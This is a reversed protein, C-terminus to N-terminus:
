GLRLPKSCHRPGTQAADHSSRERSQGCRALRGGRLRGRDEGLDFRGHTGEPGPLSRALRWRIDVPDARRITEALQAQQVVGQLLTAKASVFVHWNRHNQRLSRIAGVPELRGAHGGVQRGVQILVISRRRRIRWAQERHFAWLVQPDLVTDQRAVLDAGEILAADPGLPIGVIVERLRVNSVGLAAGLLVPRVDEVDAVRQEIQDSGQDAPDDGAEAPRTTLIFHVRSHGFQGHRRARAVPGDVLGVMELLDRDAGALLRGNRDGQVIARSRHHPLGAQVLGLHAPELHELAQIGAIAVVLLMAVAAERPVFELAPATLRRLKM